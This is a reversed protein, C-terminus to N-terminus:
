VETMLIDDADPQGDRGAGGAIRKVLHELAFLSMLVGGAFLPMYTFGGPLGIIPVSSGWTRAMLQWGYIVMCVSFLLVAADSLIQLWLGFRPPLFYMLVEFGMHFSEHVGVAAGLFIFWSMLLIAVPEVWLLSDNMVYRMYVQAFVIITMATLGLGALWLSARCLVINLGSLAAIAKRM